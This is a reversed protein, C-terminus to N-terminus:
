SVRFYKKLYEDNYIKEATIINVHTNIELVECILQIEKECPYPYVWVSKQLLCFGNKQLKQRMMDRVYKSKNEPIDFIVIRWKKDWVKLKEIKMNEFKMEKVVRKGEETLKVIFKDGVRKLIIIKNKNLGSLSRSIKKADVDKYKSVYKQNRILWKAINILFYPSTTAVVTLVGLSALVTLIDLTIKGYRAKM